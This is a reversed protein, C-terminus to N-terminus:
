DRLQLDCCNLRFRFVKSEEDRVKDFGFAEDQAKLKNLYKLCGRADLPFLFIMGGIM